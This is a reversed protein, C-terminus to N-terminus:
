IFKRNNRILELRQEVCAASRMADPPTQMLANALKDVATTAVHCRTDSSAYYIFVDGNSYGGTSENEQAYVVAGLLAVAAFMLLKKM